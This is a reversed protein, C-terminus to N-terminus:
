SGTLKLTDDSIPVIKAVPRGMSTIVVTDGSVYIEELLQVCRESFEAAAIEKPPEPKTTRVKTRDHGMIISWCDGVSGPEAFSPGKKQMVLPESETASLEIESTRIGKEDAVNLTSPIETKGAAVPTSIVPPVAPMIAQTQDAPVESLKPMVTLSPASRKEAITILPKIDSSILKKPPTPASVSVRVSTVALQAIRERTHCVPCENLDAFYYTNCKACPLGYGTRRNEPGTKTETNSASM